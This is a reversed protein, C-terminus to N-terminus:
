NFCKQSIGYNKKLRVFHLKKIRKCLLAVGQYVALGAMVLSLTRYHFEPKVQSAHYFEFIRELLQVAEEMHGSFALVTSM